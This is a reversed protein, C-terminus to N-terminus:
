TEKVKVVVDRHSAVGAGVSLTNALNLPAESGTVVACLLDGQVRLLKWGGAPGPPAPVSTLFTGAAREQWRRSEGERM